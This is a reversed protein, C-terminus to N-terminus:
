FPLPSFDVKTFSQGDKKKITCMYVPVGENRLNEKCNNEDVMAFFDSLAKGGFYYHAEDEKIIYVPFHMGKDDKLWDYDMLTVEKELIEKQDAKERNQMIEIVNNCKKAIDKLNLM